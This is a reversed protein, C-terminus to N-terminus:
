RAPLDRLVEASATPAKGQRRMERALMRESPTLERGLAGKVAAEYRSDADGEEAEKRHHTLDHLRLLHYAVRARHNGAQTNLAEQVSESSAGGSPAAEGELPPLGAGPPEKPGTRVGASGAEPVPLKGGAPPAPAPAAVQPTSTVLKVDRLKRALDPHGEAEARAALAAQVRGALPTDKTEGQLSVLAAEIQVAEPPRPWPQPGLAVRLRELEDLHKAEAHLADLSGRVEPSDNPLRLGGTERGLAAWDGQQALDQLKTLGNAEQSSGPLTGGAIIVPSPRDLPPLPPRGPKPAPPPLPPEVGPRPTVRLVTPPRPSEGPGHVEPLVPKVGPVKEPVVPPREIPIVGPRVPREFPIPRPPTIKFEGPNIKVPNIKPVPVASGGCGGGRVPIRVRPLRGPAAQTVLIFAAFLAVRFTSKTM